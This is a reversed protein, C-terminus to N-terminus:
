AARRGPAARLVLVANHGGFGFSTSIATLPGRGNATLPRATTVHDLAGLEPDPARLGVTPPATRHHLAMVTAVAEM